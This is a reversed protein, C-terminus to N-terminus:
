KDDKKAGQLIAFVITGAVIGIITGTVAATTGNISPVIVGLATGTLSGVIALIGIWYQPKM